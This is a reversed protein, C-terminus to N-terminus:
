FSYAHSEGADIPVCSGAMMSAGPGTLLFLLPLIEGADAMKGRPLKEAIFSDMVAADGRDVMRAWSNEPATFAGPMIGTVIVNGAALENGLSRVYAALAAKMTNYGVSGIAETSTTSGVHVVYGGDGSQMKPILGRNIEAAGALNGRMLTELEDWDLLPDRMGFGGGACHIIIDPTGFNSRVDNIIAAVGAKDTLDGPCITHNGPNPMVATLDDLNDKSRASICLSARAEAFAVAGVWGLGKSAGTILVKKGGYEHM